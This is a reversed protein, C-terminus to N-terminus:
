EQIFQKLQSRILHLDKKNLKSEIDSNNKISNDIDFFNNQDKVKLFKSIKEKTNNHDYLFDHFKIILFNSSNFKTHNIKEYIFKYWKIFKYINLGSYGFSPNQYISYYTGIPDRLTIICKSKSFFKLNQEPQYINIAQDILAIKGPIFTKSSKILEDIFNICHDIFLEHSVPLILKYINIDSLKKRLVIREFYFRCYNILNLKFKSYQPLGNYETYIINNLFEKHLFKFKAPYRNKKRGGSKLVFKNFVDLSNSSGNISFNYYLSNELDSIGEPDNVLRFEQNYFPLFIDDRTKLFDFVAGSGSNGPGAIIIKQM